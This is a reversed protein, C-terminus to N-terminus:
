SLNKIPKKHKDKGDKVDDDRKFSIQFISSCNFQQWTPFLKLSTLSEDLM